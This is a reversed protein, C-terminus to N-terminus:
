DAARPASVDPLAIAALSAVEGAGAVSASMVGVVRWGEPSLWLLPAGSSGEMVACDLGLAGPGHWIIACGDLRSPAHPRDRRYGIISFRAEGGPLGALAVPTAEAAPIPAELRVIASDHAVAEPEPSTDPRYDPSPLLEAALRHAAFGGRRWGAIFHVDQPRAIRGDPRFLCHAATLVLDPAVLTGSCMSRRDLGTVNVRGIANWAAQEAEPLLVPMGPEDAGAAGSTLCLAVALGLRRKNM